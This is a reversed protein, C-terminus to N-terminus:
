AACPGLLTGWHLAAIQDAVAVRLLGDGGLQAWVDAREHGYLRVQGCIAGDSARLALIHGENTALALVSDHLTLRARGAVGPLAVQWVIQQAGDLQTLVGADFIYLRGDAAATIASGSGSALLAGAASGTRWVAGGSYVVLGGLGLPAVGAGPSVALREIVRGDASLRVLEGASTTLAIEGGQAAWDRPPPLDAIRWRVSLLDAALAAWGREGESVLVLDGLPIADDAATLGADWSEGLAGDLGLRQLRGDAYFITTEVGDSIVAAPRREPIARWLRRGDPTLRVLRGSDIVILSHDSLVAPPTPPGGEDSVSTQWRMAPHLGAQWNLLMKTPRLYGEDLPDRETYGPGPLDRNRVRIEFHLHPAPRAEGIAGIVDGARVCTYAAPMTAGDAEILHGYQSYFVSGDAFTHEIIVVGGDRGWVIPSALTVRGAAIARVAQGYTSGRGGFWDEGTHFWGRHRYSPVAYDQMITFVAPDVPFDVREVYGCQPQAGARGPAALALLLALAWWWHRM